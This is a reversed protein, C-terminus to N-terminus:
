NLLAISMTLYAAFSVWLLYPILLFAATKDIAYFKLITALIAIWLAVVVGVGGIPSHLGFFVLSWSINFLFQVGFFQLAEHVPKKKKTRRLWILYASIGMLAFLITWVPAFIWNPPSLFPKILGRYWTPIAPMTFFSGSAGLLESIIIFGFCTPLNFKKMSYKPYYM